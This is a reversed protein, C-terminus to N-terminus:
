YLIMIGGYDRMVAPAGNVVGAEMMGAAGRMRESNNQNKLM